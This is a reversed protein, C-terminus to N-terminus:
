KPKGMRNLPWWIAECRGVIDERPVLGWARGDNSNNRNDGIMLYMGAPIKVAPASMLRKMEEPDDLAYPESTSYNGHASFRSNADESTYNLPIVKGNREVLKFSAEKMSKKEDDSFERFNVCTEGRMQATDVCESLHKAEPMWKGGNRYMVGEKLEILDGPTGVCRKIYDAKVEGDPYFYISTPPPAHAPPRFVVIDGAKPNSFRYILKNAVIYDNVYLSPWMSGSPITFAQVGFPRIVLFVFVAAYVIADITDSFFRALHYTAGRLHAKTNKLYPWLAFRLITLVVSLIVIKSIPTRALTDVLERTGGEVQEIKQGNALQALLSSPPFPFM